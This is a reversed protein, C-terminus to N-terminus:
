RGHNQVHAPPILGQIAEGGELIPAGLYAGGLYAPAELYAAWTFGRNTM